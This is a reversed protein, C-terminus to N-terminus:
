EYFPSTIRTSSITNFWCLHADNLVEKFYQKVAKIKSVCSHICQAFKRVPWRANKYYNQFYSETICFEHKYIDFMAKGFSQMGNCKFIVPVDEM